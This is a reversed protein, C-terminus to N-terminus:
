SVHALIDGFIVGHNSAYKRVAYGISKENSIGARLRSFEFFSKAGWPMYVWVGSEMYIQPWCCHRTYEFEPDTKLFANECATVELFLAPAGNERSFNTWDELDTYYEGEGLMQEIQDPPLNSYRRRLDELTRYGISIGVSTRTGHGTFILVMHKKKAEEVVREKEKNFLRVSPLDYGLSGKYLKQTPTQKHQVFLVSEQYKKSLVDFNNHYDTYTKLINFVFDIKNQSSYNVPPIIFSVAIDSCIRVVKKQTCAKNDCKRTLGNSGIYELDTIRQIDTYNSGRISLFERTNSENSTNGPPLDDGMLVIYAVDDNLYLAEVFEDLEDMTEGDFKKLGANDINLDKKVANYYESVRSVIEANDFIGKEKIIVAVKDKSADPNCNKEFYRYKQVEWLYASTGIFVLIIAALIIAIIKRRKWLLKFNTSFLLVVLFLLAIISIFSGNAM